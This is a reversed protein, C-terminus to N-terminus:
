LLAILPYLIDFMCTNVRLFRAACSVAHKSFVVLVNSQSSPSTILPSSCNETSCLSYPSAKILHYAYLFQCTSTQIHAHTCPHTHTHTIAFSLCHLETRGSFKSLSIIWVSGRTIQSDSSDPFAEGKGVLHSLLFEGWGLSWRAPQVRSLAQDQKMLAPHDKQKLFVVEM